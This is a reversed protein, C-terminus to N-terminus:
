FSYTVALSVAEGTFEYKGDATQGIPSAASGTVTHDEGYAFGVALAVRWREAHYAVGVTFGHLNTDPVAPTYNADPTASPCFYYGASLSFGNHFYRTVGASITFGSHWNFVDTIPGTAENVVLQRVHTWDTWDLDAELNWEPTPRFSYGGVIQQPFDFKTTAREAGSPLLQPTVSTIETAGRMDLRTASRYTLGFSHQTAPQWLAGLTFGYGFGDGTFRFEDGPALIGRRFDANGYNITMGAAISFTKTVQFALVPNITLYLLKDKTALTRFPTNDQYETGLGYPSYVGLGFSLRVDPIKYTLYMQGVGQLKDPTDFSGGASPKVKSDFMVGYAGIELNGGPLQTIGAPNYYIASPNDATATFANGRAYAEPDQNIIRIGLGYGPVSSLALLFASLALIFFYPPRM